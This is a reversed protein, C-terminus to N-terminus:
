LEDSNVYGPISADMTVNGTDDRTIKPKSLKSFDIKPLNKRSGIVTEPVVVWDKYKGNASIKRVTEILSGLTIEGHLAVEKREDDIRINM